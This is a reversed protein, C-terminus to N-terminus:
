NFIRKYNAEIDEVDKIKSIGKRTLGNDGDNKKTVIYKIVMKCKVSHGVVRINNDRLIQRILTNGISCYNIKLMIRNNKKEIYDMPVLSFLTINDCFLPTLPVLKVSKETNYKTYEVHGIDCILNNNYLNELLFWESLKSATYNTKEESSAKGGTSGVRDPADKDKNSKTFIENAKITYTTFKDMALMESYRININKKNLNVANLNEM